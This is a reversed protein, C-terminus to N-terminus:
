EWTGITIAGNLPLFIGRGKRKGNSWEGFWMDGNEWIYIGSGHRLGNMTQGMYIDNDGCNFIEFKYSAYANSETPYEDVPKGEVFNGNYIFDGIEDYCIGQESKKDNLFGGFYYICYECNSVGFGEAAIYIGKGTKMDNSFEGLYITGDDWLYIGLGARLGGQIEGKYRDYRKENDNTNQPISQTPNTNMNQAIIRRIETRKRTAEAEANVQARAEARADQIAQIAMAAQEEAIEKEAQAEAAQKEAQKQAKLAAEAEAEARKKAELEQQRDIKPNTTFSQAETAHVKSVDIIGRKYGEATIDISYKNIGGIKNDTPQVCLVYCNNEADFDSVSKLREPADPMSFKLNPITTNIVIVGDDPTCGKSKYFIEQSNNDKEIVFESLGQAFLNGAPFAVILIMIIKQKM